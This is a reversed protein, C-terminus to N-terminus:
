AKPPLKRQLPVAREPLLYKLYAFEGYENRKSSQDLVVAGPPVSLTMNDECTDSVPKPRRLGMSPVWTREGVLPKGHERPEKTLYQAWGDYGKEELTNFNVNDGNEAWLARIEEYDSGTANLVIHHHWRHEGHYGETCYVYWTVDERMRRSERLQRIFRKLRTVAQAKTRPLRDERYTLTVVLDNLDFNEALLVELKQWSLKLNMAQRAASSCRSKAQRAVASESPLSATYVICRVLRGATEMKMRKM